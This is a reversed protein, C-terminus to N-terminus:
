GAAVVAMYRYRIHFGRHLIGFPLGRDRGETEEMIEMRQMPNIVGM